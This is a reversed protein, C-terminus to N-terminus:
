VLPAITKMRVTASLSPSTPVRLLYGFPLWRSSLKLTPMTGTHSHVHGNAPEGLRPRSWGAHNCNRCRDCNGRTIAAALPLDTCGAFGLCSARRVHSLGGLLNSPVRPRERDAGAPSASRLRCWSGHVHTGFPGLVDTVRAGRGTCQSHALSEVSHGAIRVRIIRLRALKVSAVHPRDVHRLWSTHSCM